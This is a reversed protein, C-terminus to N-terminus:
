FGVKLRITRLKGSEETIEILYEPTYDKIKFGVGGKLSEDFNIGYKDVYYVSDMEVESGGQVAFVKVDKIYFYNRYRNKVVFNILITEPGVKCIRDSSLFVLEKEERNKYTNCMFFEGFEKTLMELKKQDALKDVEGMAKKHEENLKNKLEILSDQQAKQKATFEPYTFIIRNSAKEVAEVKFNIIFTIGINTKLQLNTNLGWMESESVGQFPLAWVKVALPNAEIEARLLAADGIVPDGDLLIGAPFEMVLVEGIGINVTRYIITDTTKLEISAVKDTIPIFRTDPKKEEKPPEAKQEAAPKEPQQPTTNLKKGAQATLALLLIALFATTRTM